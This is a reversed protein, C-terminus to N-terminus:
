APATPLVTLFAVVEFDNMGAFEGALAHTGGPTFLSAVAREETKGVVSGVAAALLRQAHRMDEGQKTLKDFRACAEADPLDRGACLRKLRDLIRKAQPFPLLVAGDEGVHVLYHPSLPYGPEFARTAAAGEARLCFVIGPPVDADTSTTVASVGLSLTDLVDPNTRQYEALDIRFDTLTLDAISVGTSLDELDIVADQLKLLQRRRYELDNMPNGSQQEILNEEGTASIDLLVM